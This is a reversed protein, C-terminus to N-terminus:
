IPKRKLLDRQRMKRGVMISTTKITGAREVENVTCATDVAFPALSRGGLRPCSMGRCLPRPALDDM